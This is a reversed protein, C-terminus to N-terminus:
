KTMNQRVKFITGLSTICINYQKSTLSDLIIDKDAHAAAFHGKTTRPGLYGFLIFVGSQQNCVWYKDQWRGNDGKCKKLRLQKGDHSIGNETNNVLYCLSKVHAFVDPLMGPEELCSGYQDDPLTSAKLNLFTIVAVMETVKFLTKCTPDLMLLANNLAAISCPGRACFVAEAAVMARSARDSTSSLIRRRKRYRCRRKANTAGASDAINVNV